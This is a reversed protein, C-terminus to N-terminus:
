GHIYLYRFVLIVNMQKAGLVQIYFIWYITHARTNATNIQM